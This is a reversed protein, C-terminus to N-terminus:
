GSLKFNFYIINNLCNFQIILSVEIKDYLNIVAENYGVCRIEGSEDLLNLNFLLGQKFPKKETKSIVKAKIIWPVYPSLMNINTFTKDEIQNTSLSSNFTATSTETNNRKVSREFEDQSREFPRKLYESMSVINIIM